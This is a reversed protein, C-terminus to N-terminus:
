DRQLNATCSSCVSCAEITKIEMLLWDKRLSVPLGLLSRFRHGNSDHSLISYAKLMDERALGPIEQLVALITTEEASAAAAAKLNRGDERLQEQEENVIVTSSRVVPFRPHATHWM